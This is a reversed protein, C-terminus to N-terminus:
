DFVGQKQFNYWKSAVTGVSGILSNVTSGIPSIASASARSIAGQTTDNLAQQQYGFAARIANSQITSMDINKVIDTSAQVEAASGFGLDIGNAAM